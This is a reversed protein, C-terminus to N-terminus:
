REIWSRRDFQDGMIETEYWMRGTPVELIYVGGGFYGGESIRAYASPSRGCKVDLTQEREGLKGGKLLAPFRYQHSLFADHLYTAKGDHTTTRIPLHPFQVCGGNIDARQDRM